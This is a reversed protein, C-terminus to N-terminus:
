DNRDARLPLFSRSEDIEPAAPTDDAQAPEHTLRKWEAAFLRRMLEHSVFESYLDMSITYRRWGAGSDHEVRGHAYQRLRLQVGGDAADFYGSATSLPQDYRRTEGIAHGTPARTLARTDLVPAGDRSVRWYLQVTAGIKPPEYPDWSAITGVLLGDVNLIAALRMADDLTEVHAIGAADMAELVRNVPLVRIREIKALQQALRDALAIGDALSTGSENRMPAVAWLKSGPYPSQYVHPQIVREGCGGQLLTILVVVAPAVARAATRLMAKESTM